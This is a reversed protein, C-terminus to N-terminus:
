CWRSSQLQKIYSRLCSQSKEGATVTSPMTHGKFLVQPNTSWSGLINNKYSRLVEATTNYYLDTM